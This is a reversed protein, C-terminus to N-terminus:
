IESDAKMKLLREKLNKRFENSTYRTILDFIEILEPDITQNNGTSVSGSNNLINNNGTAVQVNATSKMEGTGDALWKPNIGFHTAIKKLVKTPPIIRGQEWTQVTSLSKEFINAFETQNLGNIERIM